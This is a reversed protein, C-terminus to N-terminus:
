EQRSQHARHSRPALPLKTRMERGHGPHIQPCSTPYSHGLARQPVKTWILLSESTAGVNGTHAGYRIRVLLHLLVFMEVRGPPLYSILPKLQMLRNFLLLLWDRVKEKWPIFRLTWLLFHLTSPPFSRLIFVCVSSALCFNPRIVWLLVFLSEYMEKPNQSVCVM